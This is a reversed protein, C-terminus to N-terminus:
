LHKLITSIHSESYMSKIDLEQSETLYAECKKLVYNASAGSM